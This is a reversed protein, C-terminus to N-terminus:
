DLIERQQTPATPPVAMLLVVRVLLRYTMNRMKQIGWKEELLARSVQPASVNRPASVGDQWTSEDIAHIEVANM